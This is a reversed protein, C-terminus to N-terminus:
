RYHIGYPRVGARLTNQAAATPAVFRVGATGRVPAISVRFKVAASATEAHRQSRNPALVPRDRQRTIHFQIHDPDIRAREAHDPAFRAGEQHAAGFVFQASLIIFGLM